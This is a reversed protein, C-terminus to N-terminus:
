EVLRGNGLTVNGISTFYNTFGLSSLESLGHVVANQSSTNSHQASSVDDYKYIHVPIAISLAAFM